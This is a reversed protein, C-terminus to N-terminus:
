DCRPCGDGKKYHDRRKLDDLRDLLAPKIPVWGSTVDREAYALTEPWTQAAAYLRQVRVIAESRGIPEGGFPELYVIPSTIGHLWLIPELGDTGSEFQQWDFRMGLNLQGRNARERTVSLIMPILLDMAFAPTSVGLGAAEVILRAEQAASIDWVRQIAADWEDLPERLDPFHGFLAVRDKGTVAKKNVDIAAWTAAVIAQLEQFHRASVPEAKLREIEALAQEHDREAATLRNEILANAQVAEELSRDYKERAEDQERRHTERDKEREEDHLTQVKELQRTHEDAREKALKYPTAVIHGIFFLGLACAAYFAAPGLISGLSVPHAVGNHKWDWPPWHNIHVWKYLGVVVAM